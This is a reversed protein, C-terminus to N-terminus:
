IQQISILLSVDAIGGGPSSSELEDLSFFSKKSSFSFVEKTMIRIARRLRKSPTRRKMARVMPPLTDQSLLTVEIIPPYKKLKKIIPILMQM